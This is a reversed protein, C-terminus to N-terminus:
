AASKGSDSVEREMSEFFKTVQERTVEPFDRLFDDISEGIDLYDVLVQVPVHTGEFVSYGESRFLPDNIKLIEPM